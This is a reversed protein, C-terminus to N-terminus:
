DEWYAMPNQWDPYNQNLWTKTKEQAEDLVGHNYSRDSNRIVVVDSRFVEKDGDMVYSYATDDDNYHTSWHFRRELSMHANRDYFAAKYFVSARKNGKADVLYSWMSHGSGERKWGEPLEAYRFLTDGHVPEGLKFGLNLLIAENEGGTGEIPLTDSMVFERQGREEQREIANGTGGFLMEAFMMMPDRRVEESTNTVKRKRDFGADYCIEKDM